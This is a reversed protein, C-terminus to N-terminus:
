CGRVASVLFALPHQAPAKTLVDHIQPLAPRANAYLCGRRTLQVAYGTRHPRGAVTQWRVTCRGTACAVSDVLGTPLSQGLDAPDEGPQTMIALRYLGRRFANALTREAQSPSLAHAPGGVHPGSPRRDGGCGALLGAAVALLAIWRM